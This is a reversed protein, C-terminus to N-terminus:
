TAENRIRELEQEVYALPDHRLPYASNHINPFQIGQQGFLRVNADNDDILVAQPTATLEKHRTIIYRDGLRPIWRELWQLKGYAAEAGWPGPDTIVFYDPDYQRVLPM